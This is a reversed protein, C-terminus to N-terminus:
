PANLSRKHGIGLQATSNDGCVYVHGSRTLLLSHQHGAAIAKIKETFKKMLVPENETVDKTGLGLQGQTNNGCVFARGSADLFITHQGGCSITTIQVNRADNFRVYVPAFQDNTSFVGLAGYKGQGWTYVEGDQTCIATHYAGCAIHAPKKDMLNEVLVPSNKTKARKDNIGLQGYSNDGM